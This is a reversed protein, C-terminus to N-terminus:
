LRCHLRLSVGQRSFLPRVSRGHWPFLLRERTRALDSLWRKRAASWPTWYGQAAIRNHRVLLFGHMNIREADIRQLFKLIAQSPVGLSEPSPARILITETNM